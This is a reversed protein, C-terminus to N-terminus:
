SRSTTGPWRAESGRRRAQLVLYMTGLGLDKSEARVSSGALSSMAVMFIAGGVTCSVAGVKAYSTWSRLDFPDYGVATSGIFSVVTQVPQLLSLYDSTTLSVAVASLGQACWIGMLGVLLFQGFDEPHPLFRATKDPRRYYAVSLLIGGGIYDRFLAFVWPSLSSTKFAASSFVSYGAVAARPLKRTIPCGFQFPSVFLSCSCCRRSM